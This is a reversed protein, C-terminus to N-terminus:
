KKIFDKSMKFGRAGFDSKQEWVLKDTAIMVSQTHACVYTYTHIYTNLSM